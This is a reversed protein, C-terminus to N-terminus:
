HFYVKEYKTMCVCMIYKHTRVELTRVLLYLKPLTRIYRRPSRLHSRIAFYKALFHLFKPSFLNGDFQIQRGVKCDPMGLQTQTVYGRSVDPWWSWSDCTGTRRFRIGSSITRNNCSLWSTLGVLKNNRWINRIPIPQEFDPFAIRGFVPTDNLFMSKM